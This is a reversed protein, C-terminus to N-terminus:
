KKERPLKGVLRIPPPIPIPPAPEPNTKLPTVAPAEPPTHSKLAALGEKVAEQVVHVESRWQQPDFSFQGIKVEPFRMEGLHFSTLEGIKEKAQELKQLLPVAPMSRAAGLHDYGNVLWELRGNQLDVMLGHIPIRPSILPSRRIHDVGNLVNQQESSFLGFFEILNDPLSTRPIGLTRFGELLQGVSVQRVRCDTHGIVAIEKGGKVLCALALSRMTSSLPDSIINGANRLWIFDEERVGLVEPLLHNLRPDICTLAVLPLADPFDSPHLGARSDGALARHNADLIADFLRM